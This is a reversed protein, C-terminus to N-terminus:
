PFVTVTITDTVVTGTSSTATVYYDTTTTPNVTIAATTAGTSWIYSDYSYAEITTTEGYCINLNGHVPVGCTTWDEVPYGNNLACDQKYASGLDTLFAVSKMYTTDNYTGSYGYTNGTTSFNSYNDSQDSKTPIYAGIGGYYANTPTLTGSFYCNNHHTYQGNGTIGGIHNGTLNGTCMCSQIYTGSSSNSYTAGILGGINNYGNGTINVNIAMCNNVHVQGGSGVFGILSGMMGKSRLTPNVLGLDWVTSTAPSSPAKIAGILGAQYYNWKDCYLNYILHGNGNLNGRFYAPNGGTESTATASGGIPIWNNTTSGNANLWIDAQINITDGSFDTTNNNVLQAVGALQEPTSINFSTQSAVYWSIDATGDWVAQAKGFHFAFTFLLM